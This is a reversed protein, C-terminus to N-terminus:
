ILKAYLSYMKYLIININGGQRRILSINLEIVLWVFLFNTQVKNEMGVLALNLRSVVHAFYLLLSIKKGSIGLKFCNAYDRGRSEAFKIGYLM